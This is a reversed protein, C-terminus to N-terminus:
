EQRLTRITICEGRRIIGPWKSIVYIKITKQDGYGGM